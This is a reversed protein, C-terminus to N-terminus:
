RVTGVPAVAQAGPRKAEASAALLQQVQADGLLTSVAALARAGEASVGFLDELQEFPSKEAPFRRLEIAADAELKALERAKAVAASLGGLGDVLGREMAQAGTWVRGKAIDEVKDLTLNRGSAVKGKFDAYGRDLSAAFAAREANTFPRDATYLNVLDSGVTVTETNLGTYRELAEGLVLKGGLIGISGTLTTPWALIADANASVYYGGSAAVDAMSVVVPKGKSKAYAVANYIQDSATPSGGPSSVRFVIARVDENDAAEFLAQAIADSNFGVDGGFLPTEAPGTVIAGQGGVLAIVADGRTPRPEYDELELFEAREGAREKAAREADEPRGLKDVLKLEVAQTAIYPSGEVLARMEEPSQKRDEAIDAVLRDYIGGMWSETAERHAQTFTKQTYVNAANKYESRQEFQPTIYFKEFVGGFFSTEAALGLPGIENLEQMWLEDVGAIAAYGSLSSGGEAQIHAVAFKGTERFAQIAAGIEEAQAPAMGGMGGRIYIGKVARDGAAAELKSVIEVTSVGGFGFAGRLEQDPIEERLDLSLVVNEPTPPKSGGSLSAVLAFPVVIVFLVLGVLVGAVTILFQKM